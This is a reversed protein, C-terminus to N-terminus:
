DRIILPLYIAPSAVEVFDAPCSNDEDGEDVHKDPDVQCTGTPNVLTGPIDSTVSFSVEFSGTVSGIIVGGALAECTLTNQTISCSINASNTIDVLNDVAPMGYSPGEPLNDRLIVQGAEFSANLLGTNSITLTWHFPSGVAVQGGTDNTKGVQLDPTCDLIPETLYGSIDVLGLVTDAGSTNPGTAAGWWNGTAIQQEPQNNFFAIERNGVICSGTVVTAEAIEENNYVGGGDTTATNYLLRSGTVTTTYYGNFIGGGYNATNERVMGGNLTITGGENHIGGGAGTATNSIIVSDELSLDSGLVYFGGGGGGGSAYNGSVTCNDLTATADYLYIGGGDSSTRNDSITSDAVTMTEDNYIGGGGQEWETGLAENGSILSGAQIDLTDYNYIGGGSSNATNYSVTSASLTTTGSSDNLIGGGRNATNPVGAGGIVSGNQVQLLDNNYIGGGYQNATNDTVTSSDVTTTGNNNIGGGSIATNGSVLSGNVMTTSDLQTYLGGGRRATNSIIDSSDVTTTGAFNYIGGGGDEDDMGEAVNTSILSSNQVNLTVRSWIGGGNNAATNSIVSSADITTTGAYNYIGGGNSAYAWNGAGPKGIHTGNQLKLTAFNAIGGGNVAISTLIASADLTTTGGENRLGGGGSLTVTGNQITIGSITVQNDCSGGPCIHFVRDIGDGDIITNDMGNGLIILNGGGLVDLDGSSNANEAAPGVLIIPTGDTAPAFTITDTESSSGAPCADVATNSNAAQIAERLSCDGDENLEDTSTNVTINAARAPQLGGVAVTLTLALILIYFYHRRNKEM